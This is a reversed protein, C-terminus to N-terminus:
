VGSVPLMDLCALESRGEASGCAKVSYGEREFLVALMERLGVEDDVVLVREAPV